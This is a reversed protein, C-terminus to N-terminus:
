GGVLGGKEEEGGERDGRVSLLHTLRTCLAERGGECWFFFIM